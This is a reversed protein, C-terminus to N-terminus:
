QSVNGSRVAITLKSEPLLVVQQKDVREEDEPYDEIEQIEDRARFKKVHGLIKKRSILGTIGLERLDDDSLESLTAGDVGDLLPIVQPLELFNLLAEVDEASWELVNDSSLNLLQEINKKKGM